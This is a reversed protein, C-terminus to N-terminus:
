PQAGDERPASSPRPRRLIAHTLTVALLTELICFTFEEPPVAWWRLGFTRGDAWTWLGWVAALHDWPAMYVLAVLVLAAAGFLLRRELLRRRLVAALAALPAVLFILLFTAYTM